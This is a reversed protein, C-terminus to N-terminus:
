LSQSESVKLAIDKRFQMGNFKINGIAEYVDKRAQSFTPASAVVSLVRGGNTVIHGNDMKTGAHFVLCNGSLDELGKIIDGSSSTEPYGKSAIV